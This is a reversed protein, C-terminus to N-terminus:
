YYQTTWISDIRASITYAPFCVYQAGMNVEMTDKGDFGYNDMLIIREEGGSKNLFGCSAMYLLPSLIEYRYREVSFALGGNLGPTNAEVEFRHNAIQIDNPSGQTQKVTMNINWVATQSPYLKGYYLDNAQVNWTKEQTTEIVYDGLEMKLDVVGEDGMDIYYPDISDVSVQWIAGAESLSVGGTHIIVKGARLQDDLPRGSQGPYVIHYIKNDYTTIEADRFLALRLEESKGNNLYMNLRYSVNFPDIALSNHLTIQQYRNIYTAFPDTEVRTTKCSVAVLSILIFIPLLSKKMM